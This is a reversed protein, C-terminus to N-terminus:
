NEQLSLCPQHKLVAGDADNEALALAHIDETFIRSELMEILLVAVDNRGQGAKM